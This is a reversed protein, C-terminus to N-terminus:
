RSQKRGNHGTFSWSISFSECRESRFITELVCSSSAAPSQGSPMSRHWEQLEPWGVWCVTPPPRRLPTNVDGRLSTLRRQLLHIRGNLSWCSVAGHHVFITLDEQWWGHCNYCSCFVLLSFWVQFDKGGKWSIRLYMDQLDGQRFRFTAKESRVAGSVRSPTCGIQGPRARLLVHTAFSARDVQRQLGHAM